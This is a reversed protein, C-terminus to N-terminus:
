VEGNNFTAHFCSWVTWPCLKDYLYWIRTNVFSSMDDYILILWVSLKMHHVSKIKLSMFAELSHINKPWQHLKKLSVWFKFGSLYAHRMKVMVCSDAHIGQNSKTSTHSIMKSCIFCVTIYFNRTHRHSYKM